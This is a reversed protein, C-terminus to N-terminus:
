RAIRGFLFGQGLFGNSGFIAAYRVESWCYGARVCM